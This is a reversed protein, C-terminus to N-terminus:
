LQPHCGPKQRLTHCTSHPSRFSKTCHRAKPPGFIIVETKDGNLQLFNNAMWNNTDELCVLVSQISDRCKLPLYLQSDDAYLHFSINHKRIIDGLPLMYLSFLMPGLISGQPIGYSVPASSSSFQGISVSFTRHKLYSSFCLLATERIGVQQDLRTLLINHDTIDFAASLYLLILIANDGSDM